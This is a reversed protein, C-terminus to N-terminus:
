KGYGKPNKNQWNWSSKCMERIVEYPDDKKLDYRNLMAEIHPHINAM